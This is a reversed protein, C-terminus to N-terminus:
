RSKVDLPKEKLETLNRVCEDLAYVLDEFHAQMGALDLDETQSRLRNKEEDWSRVVQQLPVNRQEAM